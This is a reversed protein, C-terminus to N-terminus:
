LLLGGIVFLGYFLVFLCIGGVLDGIFDKM